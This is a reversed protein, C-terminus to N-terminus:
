IRKLFISFPKHDSQIHKSLPNSTEFNNQASMVLARSFMECLVPIFEISKYDNTLQQLIEASKKQYNEIGSEDRKPKKVTFSTYTTSLDDGINHLITSPLM